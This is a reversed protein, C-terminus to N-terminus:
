RPTEIKRRGPLGHRVAKPRLLIPFIAAQAKATRVLGALEDLRQNLSPPFVNSLSLLAARSEPMIRAISWLVHSPMIFNVSEDEDRAITDRWRHVKAFM